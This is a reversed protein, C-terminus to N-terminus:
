MRLKPQFRTFSEVSVYSWNSCSFLFNFFFVGTIIPDEKIVLSPQFVPHKSSPQIDCFSLLCSTRGYTLKDTMFSCGSRAPCLRCFKQLDLTFNKQPLTTHFKGSEKLQYSGYPCVFDVLAAIRFDRDDDM